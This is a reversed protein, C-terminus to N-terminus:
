AAVEQAAVAPQARRKRRSWWLWAGNGTIFLTLWTCATWLIKLPLGGYDGFHLPQSLNIAKMYWPLERMAALAGTTADVLAIKFLRKQLGKEGFLLVTYHRTTAYQTDPFYMASARWGPAAATAAALAAEPAVPIHLRDVPAGKSFEAKIADLETYQWLGLAVTGLGLLLGTASVLLAWGLVVAGIFNHLDLQLLRAGRGRRLVGFAIRRMYPAYVVIGTVLSVLVLLAVFAGVLEGLPGLFWEAHLKFLFGTFTEEPQQDSVVAATSLDVHVLQAHDFGTDQAPGVVFYGANPNHDEVGAMLIRQGPYKAMVTAISDAIPRAPAGASTIAPEVGLAHDIEEHFILITGTLCLVLFMPTAILSSWRHLWLNIRFGRGRTRADISESPHTDQTTM